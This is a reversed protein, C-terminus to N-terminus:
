PDLGASRLEWGVLGGRESCGSGEIGESRQFGDGCTQPWQNSPGVFQHDGMVADGHQQAIRRGLTRTDDSPAEAVREVVVRAARRRRRCVFARSKDMQQQPNAVHCEVGGASHHAIVVRASIAVFVCILSGVGVSGGCSKACGCIRRRVRCKAGPKGPEEHACPFRICLRGDSNRENVSRRRASVGGRCSAGRRSFRRAGLHFQRQPALCGPETHRKGAQGCQQGAGTPAGDAAIQGAFQASDGDAVGVGREGHCHLLGAVRLSHATQPLGSAM